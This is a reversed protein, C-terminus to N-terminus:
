TMRVIKSLQRDIRDRLQQTRFPKALYDDCGAEYSRRKDETFAHATVAIVPTRAISEDARIRRTLSLGDEDGRLSIDMLVIDIRESHLIDWADDACDAFFMTFDESLVLNLFKQTEHDDEVVLLSVEAPTTAAALEIPILEDTPRGAAELFAITFTSGLGKTSKVTMGGNNADVYRKTLTLGLGLGDYPRTYGVNEQTFAVYLQRLYSESIGIGTDAISIVIDPPRSALTVIIEGEDTFKVANDLLNRLAQSVSYKDAHIFHVQQAHRYQVTLGKEEAISRTEEVLQEVLLGIDISEMEMAYSGSELISLSLLQDVTRTLRRVALEIKEFYEKEGATIRDVLAVHLVSVYGMIVNLPTRIEHSISILFAQKLRVAQEAAEKAGMLEREVQKWDSIDLLFGVAGRSASAAALDARLPATRLSVMISESAGPPSFEGEYMGHDLKLGNELAEIIRLSNLDRLDYGDCAEPTLGLIEALAANSRLVHLSEDYFFVGVPLGEFLMRYQEESSAVRRHLSELEAHMEEARTSRNSLELNRKRVYRLIILVGLVLVVLLIASVLLFRTLYTQRGAELERLARQHKESQYLAETNALREASLLAALSDSVAHAADTAYLASRYDGRFEHVQALAKLSETLTRALGYERAHEAAEELRKHAEGADGARLALLGLNKLTVARTNNDGVLTSIHLSEEYRERAERLNGRERQVNAINNLYASVNASLPDVKQQLELAQRYYQLASDLQGDYWYLNGIGCFSEAIGSRDNLATRVELARDHYRRAESGRGMHRLTVAIANMSQAAGSRDRLSDFIALAQLHDNLSHDLYGFYRHVTGMGNLLQAQIAASQASHAHRMGIRYSEAAQANGGRQKWAEGALYMATAMQADNVAIAFAREAVQIAREPEHSLLTSASDLLAEPSQAQVEVVLLHLGLFLTTLVTVSLGHRLNHPYRDCSMCAINCPIQETALLVELDCVVDMGAADSWMANM